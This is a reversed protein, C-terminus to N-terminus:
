PKVASIKMEVIRSLAAELRDKPCCLSVRIYRVGASGFIFGPTIFVQKQNLISESFHEADQAHEPIKAWIFMGVQKKNYSCSLSDLLQWAIKRRERYETNRSEHWAYPTSLAETAAEQIPLFMGSDMNSKVKLVENIYASAGSLMGIRWGAMNHSKSLSNLELAVEKAGPYALISKPSPNLVLSYPNDHCILIKHASGFAILNKFLEDTAATGTPMHPYNLWIIKVKSLDQKALYDFNPYWHTSEELDYYRVEAGVMKSISTYTPYGPNPVLVQDGPNLFAMSIHMIGEKSGILPLIEQEPDLSVGYTALYWDSIASRLGMIGKYPQYGHNGAEMASHILKKITGDSPKMDPNGIGLNIIDEGQSNRKRIERLKRSFYYESIHSLRNAAPILM